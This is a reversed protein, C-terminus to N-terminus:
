KAGSQLAVLHDRVDNFRNLTEQRTEHLSAQRSLVDRRKQEIDQYQAKLNATATKYAAYDDAFHQQEARYSDAHQQYARSAKECAALAAEYEKTTATTKHCMEEAAAHETDLQGKGAALKEARQKLAEGAAANTKVKAAYADAEDKLATDGQAAVTIDADIQEIKSRLADLEQRLGAVDAARGPSAALLVTLGLALASFWRM